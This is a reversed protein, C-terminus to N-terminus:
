SPYISTKEKVTSLLSYRLNRSVDNLNFAYMGSDLDQRFLCRVGTPFTVRFAPLNRDNTVLQMDCGERHLDSMSVVNAVGNPCHWATIGFMEITGVHESTVPGGNTQLVLKEVGLRGTLHTAFWKQIEVAARAARGNECGFM